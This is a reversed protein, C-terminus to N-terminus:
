NHVQQSAKGEPVVKLRRRYGGGEPASGGAAAVARQRQLVLMRVTNIEEAAEAHGPQLRLVTDFSQLAMEPEGLHLQARGLTLHGEAWGPQLQTAATASQIARWSEGIELYVQVMCLRAQTLTHFTAAWTAAQSLGLVATCRRPRQQCAAGGSWLALQLGVVDRKTRSSISDGTYRPKRSTCCTPM